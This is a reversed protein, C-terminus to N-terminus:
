ACYDAETYSYFYFRTISFNITKRLISIYVNDFVLYWCISLYVTCIAVSNPIWFKCLLKSIEIDRYSVFQSLPKFIHLSCNTSADYLIWQEDDGVRKCNIYTNCNCNCICACSFTDATHAEIFEVDVRYERMKNHFRNSNCFISQWLSFYIWIENTFMAVCFFVRQQSVSNSVIASETTITLLWSFVM